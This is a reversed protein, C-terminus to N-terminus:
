FVTKKEKDLLVITQVSWKDGVRSLISSVTVCESESPATTEEFHSQSM